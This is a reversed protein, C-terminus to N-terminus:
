GDSGTGSDDAPDADGFLESAYDGDSPEPDPFLEVPLEEPTAQGNKDKALKAIEEALVNEIEYGLENNPDAVIAEMEAKSGAVQQGKYYWFRGRVELINMQAASEVLDNARHVFTEPYNILLYQFSRPAAHVKNKFIMGKIKKGYVFKDDDIANEIEKALATPTDQKGPEYMMIRVSSVFGMGEGGSPKYKGGYPLLANLNGGIVTTVHNLFIVAAGGKKVEAAIVGKYIGMIRAVPSYFQDGTKAELFGRTPSGAISDYIVLDYHQCLHRLGELGVELFEPEYVHFHTDELMGFEDGWYIEDEPIYKKVWRRDLAHEGDIYAVRLGRNVASGAVILATTTKGSHNLGSIETVRGIPLGGGLAIDLGYIGSPLRPIVQMVTPLMGMAELTKREEESFFSSKKKATRAM